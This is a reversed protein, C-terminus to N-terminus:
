FLRQPVLAVWHMATVSEPNLIVWASPETGV